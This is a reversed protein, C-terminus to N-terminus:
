GKWEIVDYKGLIVGTAHKIRQILSSHNIPRALYRKGDVNRSISLLKIEDSLYKM